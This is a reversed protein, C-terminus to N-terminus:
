LLTLFTGAKFFMLDLFFPTSEPQYINKFFAILNPIFIFTNAILDIILRIIFYFIFIFLPISLINFYTAQLFNFNMIFWFARTMGCAPCLIGTVSKFICTVPLIAIIYLFIILTIITIFNKIRNM